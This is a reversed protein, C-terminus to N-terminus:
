LSLAAALSLLFSTVTAVVTTVVPDAALHAEAAALFAAPDTTFEVHHTM